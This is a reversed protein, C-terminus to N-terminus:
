LSLPNPPIPVHVRTYNCEHGRKLVGDGAAIVTRSPDDGSVMTTWGFSLFVVAGTHRDFGMVFCHKRVLQCETAVDAAKRTPRSGEPAEQFRTSRAFSRMTARSRAPPSRRMPGHTESDRLSSASWGSRSRRRAM